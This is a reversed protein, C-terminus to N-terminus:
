PTWKEPVLDNIVNIRIDISNHRNAHSNRRGVRIATSIQLPQDGARISM